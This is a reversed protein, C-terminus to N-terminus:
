RRASPLSPIPICEWNAETLVAAVLQGNVVETTREAEREALTEGVCLIVALTTQAVLTSSEGFLM